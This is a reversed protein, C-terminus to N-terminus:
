EGSGGSDGGPDLWPDVTFMTMAEYGGIGLALNPGGELTRYGLDAESV